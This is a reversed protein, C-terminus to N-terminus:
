NLEPSWQPIYAENPAYATLNKYRIPIIILQANRHKCYIKVSRLFNKDFETNNQHSTIFYVAKKKVYLKLDSDPKAHELPIPRDKKEPKFDAVEHSFKNTRLSNRFEFLEPDTKIWDRLTSGSVSLRRASATIDGENKQLALKIDKRPIQNSYRGPM